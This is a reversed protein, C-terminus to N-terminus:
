ARQRDKIRHRKRSNESHKRSIEWSNARKPPPAYALFFSLCCVQRVGTRKVLEAINDVIVGGGPMIETRGRAKEVMKKIMETGELATAAGPLHPIYSVDVDETGLFIGDAVSYLGSIDSKEREAM